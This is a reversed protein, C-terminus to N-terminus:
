TYPVFSKLKNYLFFDLNKFIYNSFVKFFYKKRKELDIEFIMNFQWMHKERAFKNFLNITHVYHLM